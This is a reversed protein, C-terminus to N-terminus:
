RKFGIGPFGMTSGGTKRSPRKRDQYMWATDGKEDMEALVRDVEASILNRLKAEALTSSKAAKTVRMEGGDPSTIVTGVAMGEDEAHMAEYHMDEDYMGEDEAASSLLEDLSEDEVGEDNKRGKAEMEMEREEALIRRESRIAENIQEPTYFMELGRVQLEEVVRDYTSAPRSRRAASENLTGSSSGGGASSLGALQAIRDVNFNM